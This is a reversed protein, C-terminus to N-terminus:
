VCSQHGGQADQLGARGDNQEGAIATHRAMLEVKGIGANLLSLRRGGEHRHQAGNHTLAPVSKAARNCRSMVSVKLTCDHHSSLLGRWFLRERLSNVSMRAM